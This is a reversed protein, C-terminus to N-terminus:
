RRRAAVPRWTTAAAAGIGYAPVHEIWFPDLQHLTMLVTSGACAVAGPLWLRRLTPRHRRQWLGVTLAGLGGGVLTSIGYDPASLLADGVRAPSLRALADLLAYVLVASGVHGAIAATWFRRAGCVAVAALGLALVGLLSLVLNGEVIMGSSLLTWVRGHEVGRPSASLKTLPLRDATTLRTVILVALV